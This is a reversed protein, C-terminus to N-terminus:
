SSPCSASIAQVTRQISQDQQQLQHMTDEDQHYDQQLIAVDRTAIMMQSTYTQSSLYWPLRSVPSSLTAIRPIPLPQATKWARDLTALDRVLALHQPEIWLTFTSPNLPIFDAAEQCQTTEDPAHQITTLHTQERQVAQRAQEVSPANLDAPPSAQQHVDQQVAPLIGQVVEYANFATLLAAEQSPTVAVWKQPESQGTGTNTAHLLLTQQDVSQKGIITGGFFGVGTQLTLTGDMTLHGTYGQTTVNPQTSAAFTTSAYSVDTLQGSIVSQDRHWTLYVLTIRDTWLYGSPTSGSASLGCSTLLVLLLFLTGMWRWLGIIPLFNGQQPWSWIPTSLSFHRQM